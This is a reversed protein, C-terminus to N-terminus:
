SSVFISWANLVNLISSSAKRSCCSYKSIEQYHYSLQLIIHMIWNGLSNVTTFDKERLCKLSICSLLFEDNDDSFFLMTLWVKLKCSSSIRLKTKNKNINLANILLETLTVQEKFQFMLLLYASTILNNSKLSTRPM